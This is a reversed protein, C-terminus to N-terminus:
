SHKIIKFITNVNHMKNYQMPNPPFLNNTNIQIQLYLVHIRKRVNKLTGGFLIPILEKFLYFSFFNQPPGLWALKLAHTERDRSLRLYYVSGPKLYSTFKM